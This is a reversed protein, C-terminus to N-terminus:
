LQRQASPLRSIPTSWICSPYFRDHIMSDDQIKIMFRPYIIMSDHISARKPPPKKRVSKLIPSAATWGTFEDPTWSNQVHPEWLPPTKHLWKASIIWSIQSASLEALFLSWTSWTRNKLYSAVCRIKAPNWLRTFNFYTFCSGTLNLARVQFIWHEFSLLEETRYSPVHLGSM